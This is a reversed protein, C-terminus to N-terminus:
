GGPARDDARVVGEVTLATEQGLHGAEAFLTDGVAAKSMVAQIFGSGDRITLFHLKGSSRRNHLWGRLTVTQGDHQAIEDIHAM